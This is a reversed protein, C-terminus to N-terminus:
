HRVRKLAHEIRDFAEELLPMSTAYSIRIHGPTGFAEGPVTAVRADRLLYMCLDESSQVSGTGDGHSQGTVYASVDPFVYFAGDPQLVNVGPIRRHCCLHRYDM